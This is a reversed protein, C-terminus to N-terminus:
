YIRYEADRERAGAANAQMNSVIKEFDYTFLTCDPYEREFDTKVSDYIEGLREASIGFAAAIDAISWDSVYKMGSKSLWSTYSSVGVESILATKYKYEFYDQESGTKDGGNEYYATIEDWRGDEFLSIDPIDCYYAGDGLAFDRFKAAFTEDKESFYRYFSAMNVACKDEDTLSFAWDSFEEKGALAVLNKPIDHYSNRFVSSHACSKVPSYIYNMHASGLEASDMMSYGDGASASSDEAGSTGSSYLAGALIGEDAAEYVDNTPTSKCEIDCEGNEPIDDSSEPLATDSEEEIVASGYVSPFLSLSMHSNKVIDNRVANSQVSREEEAPTEDYAIEASGSELSYASVTENMSASKKTIQPLINVGVLTVIALCAALSGYRVLLRKAKGHKTKNKTSDATKLAKGDKEARIQAMVSNKISKQPSPYAARLLSSYKKMEEDSFASGGGEENYRLDESM